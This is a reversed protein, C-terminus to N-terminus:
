RLLHELTGGRIGNVWWDDFALTVEDGQGNHKYEVILANTLEVTDYLTLKGTPNPRAFSLTATKFAENSCLASWLLPSASDVERVITIPQHQRRGTLQASGQDYQTMSHALGAISTPAVNFDLKLAGLNWTVAAMEM